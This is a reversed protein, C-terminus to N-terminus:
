KQHRIGHYWIDRVASQLKNTNFYATYYSFHRSLRLQPFSAQIVLAQLTATHLSEELWKHACM